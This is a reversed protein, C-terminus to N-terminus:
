WQIALKRKNIIMTVREREREAMMNELQLGLKLLRSFFTPKWSQLHYICISKMTELIMVQAAFFCNVSM